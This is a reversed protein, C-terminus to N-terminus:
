WVEIGYGYSYEWDTIMNSIYFGLKGGTKGGECLLTEKAM